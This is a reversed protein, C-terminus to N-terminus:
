RVQTGDPLFVPYGDWPQALSLQEAAAVRNYPALFMGYRLRLMRDDPQRMIAWQYQAATDNPTEDSIQARGMLRFVQEAHNIQTTFPAKQMRSMMENAIRARDYRTLALLRECDSETLVGAEAPVEGKSSLQAAVKDFMARAVM